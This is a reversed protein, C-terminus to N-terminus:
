ALKRYPSRLRSTGKVKANGAALDPPILCNDALKLSGTAAVATLRVNITSASLRAEELQMKYANVVAKSIPPRSQSHYWALVRILFDVLM